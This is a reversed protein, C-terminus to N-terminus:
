KGFVQTSWKKLQELSIANESGFNGSLLSRIHEGPNRPQEKKRGFEEHLNREKPDVMEVLGNRILMSVVPETLEDYSEGSMLTVELELFPFEKAIRTWENYVEEVSPWKGVNDTYGINGDPHCWGHPGGAFSCSVWSNTVYMTKILGWKEEWEKVSTWYEQFTKDDGDISNQPMRLIRVAEEIYDRNNGTQWVFFDDTRRIIELAQQESVATGTVIMQPWKTLEANMLSDITM